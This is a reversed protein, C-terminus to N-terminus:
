AIDRNQWNTLSDTRQLYDVHATVLEEAKALLM